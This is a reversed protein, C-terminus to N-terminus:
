YLDYTKIQGNNFVELIYFTDNVHIKMKSIKKALKIVKKKHKPKFPFKTDSGQGFKMLDGDLTVVFVWIGVLKPKKM